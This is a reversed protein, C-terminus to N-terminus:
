VNTVKSLLASHKDLKGKVCTKIRSLEGASAKGNDAILTEGNITSRGGSDFDISKATGSLSVTSGQITKCMVQEGIINDLNLVSAESATVYLNKALLKDVINVHSAQSSKVIMSTKAEASNLTVTGAESSNLFITPCIISSANISSGDHAVIMFTGEAKIPSDISIKSGQYSIVQSLRPATVNIRISKNSEYGSNVNISLDNNKVDVSILEIVSYPAEAIVKYEEGINFHVDIFANTTISSFSSVSFEEVANEENVERKLDLSAMSKSNQGVANDNSASCIVTGDALIIFGDYITIKNGDIRVDGEIQKIDLQM